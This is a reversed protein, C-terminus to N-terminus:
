HLTSMEREALLSLFLLLLQNWEQPNLSQLNKPLPSQPEQLHLFAQSLEELTLQNLMKLRRNV